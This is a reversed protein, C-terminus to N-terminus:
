SASRRWSRYKEFSRRSRSEKTSRGSHDSARFAYSMWIFTGDKQRFRFRSFKPGDKSEFVGARDETNICDLWLGPTKAFDDPQWGLMKFVNDSIFTVEYTSM